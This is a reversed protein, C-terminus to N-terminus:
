MDLAVSGVEEGFGLSAGADSTVVVKTWMGQCQSGAGSWGAAGVSGDSDGAFDNAIHDKGTSGFGFMSRGKEGISPLFGNGFADGELFNAVWLSWNGHDSVVGSGGDNSIFGDLLLSGFGHISDEHTEIIPNAILCALAVETDVPLFTPSIQGIIAGFMVRGFIVDPHPWMIQVRFLRYQTLGM